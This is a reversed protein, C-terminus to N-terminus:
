NNQAKLAAAVARASQRHLPGYVCDASIGLESCLRAFGRATSSTLLGNHEGSYHGREALVDQMLWVYLNKDQPFTSFIVADRKNEPLEAVLDSVTDRMSFSLKDKLKTQAVLLDIREANLKDAKSEILSLAQEVGNEKDITPLWNAYITIATPDDAEAAQKILSAAQERDKEVFKGAWYARALGVLGKTDGAAAAAEYQGIATAADRSLLYDALAVMADTNGDAAAAHMVDLDAASADESKAQRLAKRAAKFKQIAAKADAEADVQIDADNQVTAMTDSTTDAQALALMPSTAFTATLVLALTYNKEHPTDMSTLDFPQVLGNFGSKPWCELPRTPSLASHSDLPKSDIM